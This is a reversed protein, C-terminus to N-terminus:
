EDDIQECDIESCESDTDHASKISRQTVALGNFGFDTKVATKDGNLAKHELFNANTDGFVRELEALGNSSPTADTEPMALNHLVNYKMQLYTDTASSPSHSYLSSGSYDMYRASPPLTANASNSPSRQALYPPLTYNLPQGRSLIANRASEIVSANAMPQMIPSGGYGRLQTAALPAISSAPPANATPPSNLMISQLPAPGAPTQSFLWLRDGVVMPRALGGIGLQAYYHSALTEVDATYKRKWKTRRNQFWIKIQFHM